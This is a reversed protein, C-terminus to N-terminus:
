NSLGYSYTMCYTSGCKLCNENNPWMLADHTLFFPPTPEKRALFFYNSLGKTGRRKELAIELIRIEYRRRENAMQLSTRHLVM